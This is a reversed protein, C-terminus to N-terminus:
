TFYQKVNQDFLVVLAWIGVFMNICWCPGFCPIMTVIVAAVSLGHSKLERMKMLGMFSFASLGLGIVASIVGIAGSSYRQLEGFEGRDQAAIGLGLVNSLLGLVQLVAWIAVCVMMITAITAVKGRVAFADPGYVPEPGGYHAAPPAYVNFQPGDPGPPGGPPGPPGYGGGGPPGYGGGGGPQYGSM